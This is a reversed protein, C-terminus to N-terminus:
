GESTGRIRVSFAVDRDFDMLVHSPRCNTNPADGGTSWQICNNWEDLEPYHDDLKVFIDHEQVEWVTGTKGKMNKCFSDFRDIYGLFEVRQGCLPYKLPLVATRPQKDRQYAFMALDRLWQESPQMKDPCPCQEPVNFYVHSLNSRNADVSVGPAIPCHLKTVSLVKIGAGTEITAEYM